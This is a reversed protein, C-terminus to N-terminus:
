GCGKVFCFQVCAETPHNEAGAGTGDDFDPEDPNFDASPAASTLEALRDSLTKKTKKSMTSGPTQVVTDERKVLLTSSLDAASTSRSLSPQSSLTAEALLLTVTSMDMNRRM